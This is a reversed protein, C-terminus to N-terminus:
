RRPRRAAFLNDDDAEAQSLMPTAPRTPPAPPSAPVPFASPTRALKARGLRIDKVTGIQALIEAKLGAAKVEVGEAGIAEIVEDLKAGDDRILTIIDERYERVIDAQTRQPPKAAKQRQYHSRLRSSDAPTSSVLAGKELHHLNQITEPM